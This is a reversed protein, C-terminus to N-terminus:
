CGMGWGMREDMNDLADEDKKQQAVTKDVEPLEKAEAKMATVVDKWEDVGVYNLTAVVSPRDLDVEKMGSGPVVVTGSKALPDVISNDVGLKMCLGLYENKLKEYREDLITLPKKFEEDVLEPYYYMLKFRIINWTLYVQRKHQTDLESAEELVDLSAYKAM